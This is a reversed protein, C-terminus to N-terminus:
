SGQLQPADSGGGSNLGFYRDVAQALYDQLEDQTGTYELLEGNELADEFEAEMAGEAENLLEDYIIRIETRLRKKNRRLMMKERSFKSM